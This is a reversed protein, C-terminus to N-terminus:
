KGITLGITMAGIVHGKDLVPVSIQALRAGASHDLQPRDIFVAGNGENFARQWKPEDGQWYDSTKATACVLAGQADMVFSEGYSPRSAVLQRLRDACANTTVKKVLAAANGAIWQEDLASIQQATMGKANQAAVAAALTADAGWGQITQAERRIMQHMEIASQAYAWPSILVLSAALIAPKVLDNDCGAATPSHDADILTHGM